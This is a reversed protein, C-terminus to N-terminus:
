VGQETSNSMESIWMKVKPVLRDIDGAGMTVLVEPQLSELVEFLKEKAVAMKTDAQIGELLM